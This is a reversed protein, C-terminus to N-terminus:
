SGFHFAALRADGRLSIRLDHVGELAADLDAAVTTWAYRGGTDPM